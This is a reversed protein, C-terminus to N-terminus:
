NVSRWGLSALGKISILDLRGRIRYDSGVELLTDETMHVMLDSIKLLYEYMNGEMKREIIRCIYTGSDQEGIDGVLVKEIKVPMLSVQADITEGLMKESCIVDQDFIMFERGKIVAEIWQDHLGGDVLAGPILRSVLICNYPM